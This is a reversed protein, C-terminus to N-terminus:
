FTFGTFNGNSMNIRGALKLVRRLENAAEAWLQFMRRCRTMNGGSAVCRRVQTELFRVLRTLREELTAQGRLGTDLLSLVHGNTLNVTWMAFRREDGAQVSRVPMVVASDDQLEGALGPGGAEAVLAQLNPTTRRSLARVEVGQATALELLGTTDVQTARERSPEHAARITLAPLHHELAGDVLGRLVNAWFAPVSDAPSRPVVRVQDHRLDVALEVVPGQANLRQRVALNAITLMPQDRILRVHTRDADGIEVLAREAHTAYALAVGALLGDEPDPADDQSVEATLRQNGPRDFSRGVSAADLDRYASEIAALQHVPGASFAM